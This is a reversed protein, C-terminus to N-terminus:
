GSGDSIEPSLGPVPHGAMAMGLDGDDIQSAPSVLMLRGRYIVAIRDALKYLEELDLTILLIAGGEDRRRLLRLHVYDIAGVDLGWTPNDAVLAAPNSSLERALVVKQQNGGSLSGAIVDPDPPRVDYEVLLQRARERVDDWQVIGRRRYRGAALDAIALNEALTMDLVLGLGQRDEPIVGLGANRRAAPTASTVDRGGVNITGSTPIVLGMLADVLERQGNGEVGAIGVIEGPSVSLTLRAIAPADGRGARVTLDKIELSPPRGEGGISAREPLRGRDQGTMARALSRQDFSGREISSVRSGRRLVTVRDAVEMVEALKHTVLVISHGLDRLNSLITLLNSIQTPGLLSTPEDLILVAADRYMAKVIEVRQQLDVPLEEVLAAANMPMQLRKSRDAVATEIEHDRLVLNSAKRVGLMVNEAVTFSPVLSFHQHVMGIGNAIADSPSHINVQQGRISISGSDARVHGFLINMLTTKGAGNEGLLVHIEAPRLDFDISNNAVTEGFMKTISKMEVIPIAAASEGGDAAPM